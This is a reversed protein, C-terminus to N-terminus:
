NLQCLFIEAHLSIHMIVLRYLELHIFRLCVNGGGFFVQSQEVLEDFRLMCM